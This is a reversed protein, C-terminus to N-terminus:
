PDDRPNERLAREEEQCDYGNKLLRLGDFAQDLTRGEILKLASDVLVEDFFFYAGTYAALWSTGDHGILLDDLLIKHMLSSDWKPPTTLCEIDVLLYDEDIRLNTVKVVDLTRTQLVAVKNEFPSFTNLTYTPEPDSPRQDDNM